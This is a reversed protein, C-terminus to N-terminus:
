FLLLGPMSTYVQLGLALSARVPPCGQWESTQWGEWLDGSGLKEETSHAIM